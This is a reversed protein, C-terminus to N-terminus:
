ERRLLPTLTSLGNLNEGQRWPPFAFAEFHRALQHDTRRANGLFHLM